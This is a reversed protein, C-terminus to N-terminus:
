HLNSTLGELVVQRLKIAETEANVLKAVEHCAYKFQNVRTSPLNLILDRLSQVSYAETTVGIKEREVFESVDPLPSAVVGVRAQICDFLKNPMSHKVSFSNPSLYVLALDYLNIVAPLDDSPVPEMIRVNNAKSALYKLRKLRFKQWPAPVLYMDLQVRPLNKLAHIMIELKRSKAALGTHVVRLMDDSKERMSLDVYERANLIIKVEVGFNAQYERALTASVTTVCQAQPLYKKCLWHYYRMLFVRFRWDDDMERPAYEHMDVLVPSRVHEFLPLTQVDNLLALDFEIENLAKAVFQIAKTKQSSRRYLRFMHPILAAINMPLYRCSNPISIHASVGPPKGGFGVSVIRYSDRLASIHRRVRVDNEVRTMAIVLVTKMGDKFGMHSKALQM